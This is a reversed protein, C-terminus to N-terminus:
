KKKESRESREKERRSTRELDFKIVDALKRREQFRIFNILGVFIM